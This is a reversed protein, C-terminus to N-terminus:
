SSLLHVNLWYPSYIFPEGSMESLEVLPVSGEKNVRLHSPNYTSFFFM